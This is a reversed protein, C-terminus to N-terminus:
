VNISFSMYSIISVVDNIAEEAAENKLVVATARKEKKLESQIICCICM